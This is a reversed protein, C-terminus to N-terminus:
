NYSPNKPFHEWLLYKGGVSKLSEQWLNSNHSMIKDVDMCSVLWSHENLEQKLQGTEWGSYGLFFRVQDAAIKGENILRKLSDFSGGWYLNDMIKISEPILDGATHIFYLYEPNVPGGLHVTASFDPLEEKFNKIPFDVEKNLIFGVVEENTYEVLLIISRNFYSGDLFPEAILIRGKEPAVNNSEIRFLDDHM